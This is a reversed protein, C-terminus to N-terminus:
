YVVIEGFQAFYPEEAGSAPRTMAVRISTVTKFVEPDIKGGNTLDVKLTKKAKIEKGMSGWFTQADIQETKGDATRYRVCFRLIVNSKLIEVSLNTHGTIDGSFGPLDVWRNYQGKFTATCTEDDYECNGGHATAFEMDIIKWPTQANLNVTCLAVLAFILMLKKM